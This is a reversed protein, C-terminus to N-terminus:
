QWWHLTRYTRLDCYQLMVTYCVYPHFLCVKRSPTCQVTLSDHADDDETPPDSEAEEVGSSISDDETSLSNPHYDDGIVLYPSIVCWLIHNQLKLTKIGIACQVSCYSVKNCYQLPPTEHSKQRHIASLVGGNQYQLWTLSQLTCNPCCQAHSCACHVGGTCVVCLSVGMWLYSHWSHSKCWMVAEGSM